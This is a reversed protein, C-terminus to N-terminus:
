SAILDHSECNGCILEDEKVPDFGSASLLLMPSGGGTRRDKVRINAGATTEGCDRCRYTLAMAAAATVESHNGDTRAM